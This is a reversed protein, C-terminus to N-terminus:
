GGALMTLRVFTLHSDPQLFLQRDLECHQDGDIVVFYLGDEFATLAAAVAADEDVEQPEAESAGMEIKGREAAEAIQRSTLVRIVQRDRQRRRFAAVEERVIRELLERLTVGGSESLEAPPPLSFDAFLPKKQGVAKGSITLM